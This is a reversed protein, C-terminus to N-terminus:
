LSDMCSDSRPPRCLSPAYSVNAAGALPSAFALGDTPVLGVDSQALLTNAVGSGTMYVAPFGAEEILKATLTNHAGPAVVLKGTGIMERLRKRKSHADNMESEAPNPQLDFVVTVAKGGHGKKDLRM